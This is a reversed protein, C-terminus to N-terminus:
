AVMRQTKSLGNQKYCRMCLFYLKLTDNTYRICKKKDVATDCDFCFPFDEELIIRSEIMAKKDYGTVKHKMIEAMQCGYNAVLYTMDRIDLNRLDTITIPPYCNKLIAIIKNCEESLFGSTEIESDDKDDGLYDSFWVHDEDQSVGDKHHSHLITGEEVGDSADNLMFVLSLGPIMIPSRIFTSWKQYANLHPHAQCFEKFIDAVITEHSKHSTQNLDFESIGPVVTLNAHDELLVCLLGEDNIAYPQRNEVSDDGATKRNLFAMVKLDEREKERFVQIFTEMCDSKRVHVNGTKYNVIGMGWGDPNEDIATELISLPIKSAGRERTIVLSM